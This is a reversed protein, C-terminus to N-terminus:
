KSVTYNETFAYRKTIM